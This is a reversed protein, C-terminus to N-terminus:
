FHKIVRAPIGVAVSNPPINKSVVSNAGVISNAGITVGPLVSVNEGIWVNEEIHVSGKSFLKRDKVPISLQDSTITGHSHDSIYVKSAIVVNDEIILKDIIGIHCYNNIRVHNGIIISPDYYFGNYFDVADLRLGSRFSCDNGISIYKLGKAEIPGELWFDEGCNGLKRKISETLLRNRFAKYSNMFDYSYIRSIIKLISRRVLILKNM